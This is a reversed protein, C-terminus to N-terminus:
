QCNHWHLNLQVNCITYSNYISIKSYMLNINYYKLNKINTSDMTPSTSPARHVKIPAENKRSMRSVTNSPTLFFRSTWLCPQLLDLLLLECDCCTLTVVVLTYPGCNEASFKQWIWCGTQWESKLINSLSQFNALTKSLVSLSQSYLICVTNCRDGSM